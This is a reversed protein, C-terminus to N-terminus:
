KIGLRQKLHGTLDGEMIPRDISARKLWATAWRIDTKCSNCVPGGLQKDFTAEAQPHNEGCCACAFVHGAKNDM